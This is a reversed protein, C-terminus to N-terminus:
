LLTLALAVAAVGLARRLSRTSASVGARGGEELADIPDVGSAQWAPACGFGIAAMVTIALTFLLVPISVRIDAESTVIFPPMIAMVGKVLAEALAAGLLGGRIALTLSEVM